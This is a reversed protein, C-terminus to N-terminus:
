CFTRSSIQNQSLRLCLSSDYCAHGNSKPQRLVLSMALIRACRRDLVDHIVIAM